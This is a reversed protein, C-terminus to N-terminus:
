RLKQVECLNRALCGRLRFLVGTMLCIICFCYCLLCIFSLLLFCIISCSMYYLPDLLLRVLKQQRGLFWSPQQSKPPRRCRIGLPKKRRELQLILFSMHQERAANATFCVPLQAQHHCPSKPCIESLHM